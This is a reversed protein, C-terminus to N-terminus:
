SPCLAPSKMSRWLLPKSSKPETSNWSNVTSRPSCRPLAKTFELADPRLFPKQLSWDARPPEVQWSKNQHAQVDQLLKKPAKPKLTLRVESGDSLGCDQLLSEDCDLPGRMGFTLKQQNAPIGTAVQVLEKLSKSDLDLDLMGQGATSPSAPQSGAAAAAREAFVRRVRTLRRNSPESSGETMRGSFPGM